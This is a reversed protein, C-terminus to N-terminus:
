AGSADRKAVVANLDDDLYAVYTSGNHQVIPTWWSASNTVDVTIPAEVISISSAAAPLATGLTLSAGGLIAALIALRLRRFPRRSHM